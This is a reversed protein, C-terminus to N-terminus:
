CKLLEIYQDVLRSTNRWEKITESQSLISEDYASKNVFFYRLQQALSQEDYIIQEVPLIEAWPVAESVFVLTNMQLAEVIAHGFNENKSPFAVVSYSAELLSQIEDIEKHSWFKLDVKKELALDILEQKYAPHRCDGILTVPLDGVLSSTNILFELNKKPDIRGFNYLIKDNNKQKSDSKWELLRPINPICKIKYNYPIEKMELESTAHIIIEVGVFDLVRLILSVLYNYVFKALYRKNRQNVVALEGRPALILKKLQPLFLSILFLIRASKGYFTNIYIVNYNKLLKYILMIDKISKVQLDSLSTEIDSNEFVQILNEISVVPGGMEYNPPLYDNVILAKM